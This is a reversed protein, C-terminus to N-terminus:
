FQVLLDFLSAPFGAAFALSDYSLSLSSCIYIKLPFLPQRDEGGDKQPKEVKSNAAPEVDTERKITIGFTETIGSRRFRGEGGALELIVASTRLTPTARESRWHKVWSLRSCLNRRRADHFGAAFGAALLEQPFVHTSDQTFHQM